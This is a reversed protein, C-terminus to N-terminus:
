VRHMIVLYFPLDTLKRIKNQNKVILLSRCVINVLLYLACDGSDPSIPTHHMSCGNDIKSLYIHMYDSNDNGKDQRLNSIFFTTGEKKTRYCTFTLLPMTFQDDVAHNAM